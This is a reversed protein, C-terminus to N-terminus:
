GAGGVWLRVSLFLKLAVGCWFLLVYWCWRVVPLAFVSVVIFVVGVFCGLCFLVIVLVWAFLVGVLCLVIFVVGCRCPFAVCFLMWGFLIVFLCQHAIGLMCRVAVCGVVGVRWAEDTIFVVFCLYLFCVLFLRALGVLVVGGFGVCALVCESFGHGMFQVVECWWWWSWTCLLFFTNLLCSVIFLVLLDLGM